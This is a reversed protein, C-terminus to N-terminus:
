KLGKKIKSKNKCSPWFDWNEESIKIWEEKFIWIAIEVAEEVWIYLDTINDDVVTINFVPVFASYWGEEKKISFSYNNKM